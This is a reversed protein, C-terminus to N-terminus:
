KFLWVFVGLEIRGQFSQILSVLFLLTMVVVFIIIILNWTTQDIGFTSSNIMTYSLYSIINGTFSNGHSSQMNSLVLYFLQLFPVLYLVHEWYESVHYLQCTVLARSFKFVINKFGMLEIFKFLFAKLNFGSPIYIIRKM